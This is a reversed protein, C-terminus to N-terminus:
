KAPTPPKLAKQREAYQTKFTYGNRASYVQGYSLGLEIAAPKIKTDKLDGTMIRTADDATMTRTSVPGRDRTGSAKKTELETIRAELELVKTELEKLKM